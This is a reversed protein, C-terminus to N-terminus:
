LMAEVELEDEAIKNEDPIYGPCDPYFNEGDDDWECVCTRDRAVHDAHSDPIDYSDTETAEGGTFVFTGGFGQEEEWELEIHLKPYQESLTVLVPLPPSWPTSFTIQKHDAAHDQINVDSADWKTGWNECNWDYWHPMAGSAGISEEYKKSDEGEPRVINWFSLGPDRVEVDIVEFTGSAYSATRVTYTAGVQAMLRTVDDTHKGSPDTISLNNYVWNPM